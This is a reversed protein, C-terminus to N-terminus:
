QELRRVARYIYRQIYGQKRFEDMFFMLEFAIAFVLIPISSISSLMISRVILIAALILMIIHYIPSTLIIGSVTTVGGKEKIKGYFVTGMLFGNDKTPRGMMECKIKIKEGNQKVHMFPKGGKKDAFKVGSSVRENDALIDFLESPTRKTSAKIFKM